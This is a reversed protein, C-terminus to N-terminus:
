KNDGMSRDYAERPDGTAHVYHKLTTTVRKHFVQRALLAVPMPEGEVGNAAFSIFTHRLEHPTKRGDRGLHTATLRAILDTVSDPHLHDRTLYSHFLPAEPNHGGDWRTDLYDKIADATVADVIFMGGRGGKSIEDPVDISRSAYDFHKVKCGVVVQRRPGGRLFTRCIAYNRRDGDEALRSFFLRVDDPTMVSEESRPNFQDPPVDFDELLQKPDGLKLGKWQCWAKLAFFSRRVTSDSTPTGYRTPERMWALFAPQLAELSPNIAGLRRLLHGMRERYLTATAKSRPKRRRRRDTQDGNALWVVFRDLDAELEAEILPGRHPHPM